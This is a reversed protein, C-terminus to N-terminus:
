KAEQGRQWMYVIIDVALVQISIFVHKNVLRTHVQPINNFLDDNIYNQSSNHKFIIYTHCYISNLQISNLQTSNM